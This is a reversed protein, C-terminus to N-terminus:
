CLIHRRRYHHHHHTYAEATSLIESGLRRWRDVTRNKKLKLRLAVAMM